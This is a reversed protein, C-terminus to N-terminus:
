RDEAGAICPKHQVPSAQLDDSRCVLVRREGTGPGEDEIDIHPLVGVIQFM